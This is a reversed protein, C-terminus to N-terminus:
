RSEIAIGSTALPADRQMYFKYEDEHTIRFGHEIYFQVAPNIKVVPVTVAKSQSVARAWLREM